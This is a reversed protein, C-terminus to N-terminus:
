KEWLDKFAKLVDKKPPAYVKVPAKYLHKQITKIGPYPSGISELTAKKIAEISTGSALLHGLSELEDPTMPRLFSEEIFQILGDELQAVVHDSEKELVALASTILFDLNFQERTVGNEENLTFSLYGKEIFGNLISEAANVPIGMMKSFLTPKILSVKKELLDNLKILAIVEEFSLKLEKFTHMMLKEFSIVKKELM